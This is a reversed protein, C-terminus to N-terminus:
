DIWMVLVQDGCGDTANDPLNGSLCNANFAESDTCGSCVSDNGDCTGCSDVINSSCNPYEDENNDAWGDGPDVCFEQGAGYGYGDGDTDLYYTEYEYDCSGDDVTADPDYNCADLDTCGLIDCSSGDGECVGCDDVAADGDCEGSCDEVADGGCEGSCDVDVVCNGECDYNEESYTCSGDDVNVNVDYNWASSDTCGYDFEPLSDELEEEVDEWADNLDEESSFDTEALEEETLTITFDITIEVEMTDLVTVDTVEVSGDPLDLETEILSEFNDEFAEMDELESEDVTTTLEIEVYVACSSGDGECIGCDDVAADGGCEGACDYVNGACDCAGEDIGDGNCEGCEDVVADGGCEGVCDEVNGDCDCAGEDIGDGNCEGCEDVVADGGCDGACDEVNGDCDCDGEDIGDGNCEGCEDVVADGGCDGACDEVYECSGDDEEAEPDYNCANSDTCGFEGITLESIAIFLDGFTGTGASYTAEAGLEIELESDWVKITLSNGEVAGNLVPGGFQSLDISMIASIETQNGDWVSSGVLVEGYEPSQDPDVTELVGNSDFIGIEDGPQLSSV